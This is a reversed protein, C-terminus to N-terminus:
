LRIRNASHIKINLGHAKQPLGFAARRHRRDAQECHARLRTLNRKHIRTLTNM